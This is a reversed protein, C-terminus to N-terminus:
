ALKCICKLMRLNSCLSIEVIVLVFGATEAEELEDFAAQCRRERSLLTRHSLNLFRTKSCTRTQFECSSCLMLARDASIGLCIKFLPSLENMHLCCDNTDRDTGHLGPLFVICQMEITSRLPDYHLFAICYVVSVLSTCASSPLCPFAKFVSCRWRWPNKTNSRSRTYSPFCRPGTSCVLSEM